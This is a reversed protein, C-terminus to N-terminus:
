EKRFKWRCKSRERAAAMWWQGGRGRCCIIHVAHCTSLGIGFQTIEDRLDSKPNGQQMGNWDQSMLKEIRIEAGVATELAQNAPSMRRCTLASRASSVSDGGRKGGCSSPEERLEATYRGTIVLPKRPFCIWCDGCADMDSVPLGNWDISIDTLV